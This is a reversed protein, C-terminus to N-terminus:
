IITGSFKYVDSVTPVDTGNLATLQWVYIEGLTNNFSMFRFTGASGLRTVIGCSGGTLKNNSLIKTPTDGTYFLATTYTPIKVLEAYIPEFTTFGASLMTMTYPVSLATRIPIPNGSVMGMYRVLSTVTADSDTINSIRWTAFNGSVNGVGIIAYCDYTNTDSRVIVGKLAQTTVEGGTLLTSCAINAYFTCGRRYELVNELTSKIDAWTNTTFVISSTVKDTNGIVSMIDQIDNTNDAIDDTNTSVTNDLQQIEVGVTIRAWKAPDFPESQEIAVTSVYYNDEYICHTGVSVPFTLGEYAVALNGALNGGSGVPIADIAPPMEEPYYKTTEGNKRRIADAIDYLNQEDILVKNDDM